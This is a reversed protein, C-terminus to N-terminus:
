SGSANLRGISTNPQFAIASTRRGVASSIRLLEREPRKPLHDKEIEPPRKLDRRHAALSRSRGFGHERQSPQDGRAIGSISRMTLSTRCFADSELRM